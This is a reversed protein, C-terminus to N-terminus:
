MTFFVAYATDVLVDTDELRWPSHSVRSAFSYSTANSLLFIALKTQINSGNSGTVNPRDMNSIKKAVQEATCLINCREAERILEFYM